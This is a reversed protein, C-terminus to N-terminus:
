SNRKNKKLLYKLSTVTGNMPSNKKKKNIVKGERVKGKREQAVKESKKKKERRGSWRASM